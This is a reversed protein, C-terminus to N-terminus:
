QRPLTLKVLLGGQPHNMLDLNGGHARVINRAIGMGLGSGSANRNRTSDLRVYPEFIKKQDYLSVGPGYDRFLIYLRQEYDLLTVKVKDGYKIANDILNTLCRKLALPKGRFPAKISGSISMTEPEALEEQISQLLEMIDVSEINEHIDTDKVCQLAGKVMMELEDLNKIFKDTHEDDDLLEARLRLRTIPTKLDHSIASFLEERDDLYRKLQEQMANMAKAAEAIEAPGTEELPPRHIDQGLQKAATSFRKLPASLWRVIVAITLLLVTSVVLLFVLQSRPLYKTELTMLPEPLLAAMYIWEGDELPFQMVLIPPNYPELVLTHQAWSPPLDALLTDNNLVHLNNPASFEVKVGADAGFQHQMVRSVENIVMHKRRSDPIPHIDILEHNLSVFFRTGGMNRLQNLVIHRYEFPLSRFFRITSAMSLALSNSVDTLSEEDRHEFQTSWIVSVILQSMLIATLLMLVMRSMMTRPTLREPWKLNM